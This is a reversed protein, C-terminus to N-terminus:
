PFLLAIVRRWKEAKSAQEPTVKVNLKIYLNVTLELACYACWDICGYYLAASPISLFPTKSEWV